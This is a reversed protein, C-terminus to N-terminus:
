HNTDATTDNEILKYIVDKEDERDDCFCSGLIEKLFHCSGLVLGFCGDCGKKDEVVEFELNLTVKQGIETM